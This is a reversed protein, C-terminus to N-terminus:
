KPKFEDLERKAVQEVVADVTSLIGYLVSYLLLGHDSVDTGQHCMKSSEKRM